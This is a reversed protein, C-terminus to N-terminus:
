KQYKVDWLFYVGRNTNGSPPLAKERKLYETNRPFPTYGMHEWFPKNVVNSVIIDDLGLNLTIDELLGMLKRGLSMRRHEGLLQFWITMIAPNSITTPRYHFELSTCDTLWDPNIGLPVIFDQVFITPAEAEIDPWWRNEPRAIIVKPVTGKLHLEPYRANASEVASRLYTIDM